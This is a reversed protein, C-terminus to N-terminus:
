LQIAYGGKFTAVAEGVVVEEFLALAFKVEDLGGGEELGVGQM